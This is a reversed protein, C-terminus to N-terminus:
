RTRSSRSGNSLSPWTGTDSDAPTLMYRCWERVSNVALACKKTKERKGDTYNCPVSTGICNRCGAKEGTCKTKKQRCAECARSVHQRHSRKPDYRPEGGTGLRKIAVRANPTVSPVNVCMSAFSNPKFLCAPHTEAAKYNSKSAVYVALSAM